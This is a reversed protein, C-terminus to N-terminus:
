TSSSSSFFLRDRYPNLRSCSSDSRGDQTHLLYSRIVVIYEIKHLFRLRTDHPVVPPNYLLDETMKGGPSHLRGGDLGTAWECMVGGERRKRKAKGERAFRCRAYHGEGRM